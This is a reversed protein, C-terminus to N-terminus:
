DQKEPRFHMTGSDMPMELYLSGNKIFFSSVRGLDKMFPADLSDEPCAARTSIMPGFSIKNESVTFNGSGRNCDFRMAARGDESFTVTYRDPETVMIKEVPTVTSEWQWTQGYISAPEKVDADAPKSGQGEGCATIMFGLFIICLFRAM